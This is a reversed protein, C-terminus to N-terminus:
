FFVGDDQDIREKILKLIDRKELTESSIEKTNSLVFMVLKKCHKGLHGYRMCNHCLIVKQVYNNVEFIVHNVTVRKPLDQSQFTVIVKNIPAYKTEGNEVVRRTMRKVSDILFNCHDFPRLRELIYQKAVDFPSPPIVEFNLSLNRSGTSM